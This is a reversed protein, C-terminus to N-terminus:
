PHEVLGIEVCKPCLLQTNRWHSPGVCRIGRVTRSKRRDLMRLPRSHPVPERNVYKLHEFLNVNLNLKLPVGILFTIVNGMHVMLALRVIFLRRTRESMNKIFCNNNLGIMDYYVILDSM